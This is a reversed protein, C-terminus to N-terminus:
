FAGDLNKTKMLRAYTTYRPAQPAKATELLIQQFSARKLADTQLDLNQNATSVRNYGM